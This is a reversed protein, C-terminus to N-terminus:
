EEDVTEADASGDPEDGTDGSEDSGDSQSSDDAEDKLVYRGGETACDKCARTKHNDAFAEEITGSYIEASRKLHPCDPNFHYVDGSATWYVEGDDALQAAAVEAQDYAESTTPQWNAGGLGAAVLAVGAVISCVTKTKKDLDKNMLTLLIIPAFAIVAIIVGLETQIWYAVANKKSAPDISNARNWTLSGALVFGFDVVLLIIVWWMRDLGPFNFTGNMELVALVEMVIGVLWLVFAVIRLPMAQSRRRAHSADLDVGSVSHAKVDTVSEGTSRDIFKRDKPDDVRKSVRKAPSKKEAM